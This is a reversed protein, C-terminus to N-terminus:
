HRGPVAANLDRVLRQEPVPGPQGPPQLVVLLATGQAAVQGRRGAVPGLGAARVGLKVAPGPQGARQVPGGPV